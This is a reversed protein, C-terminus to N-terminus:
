ELGSEQCQISNGAQGKGILSAAEKPNKKHEPQKRMRHTHAFGVGEGLKGTLGCRCQSSILLLDWPSLFPVGAPLLARLRGM